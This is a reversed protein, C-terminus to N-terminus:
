VESLETQAYRNLSSFGYLVVFDAVVAQPQKNVIDHNVFAVSLQRDINVEFGGEATVKINVILVAYKGRFGKGRVSFRCVCRRHRHMGQLCHVLPFLFTFLRSFVSNELSKPPAPLLVQVEVEKRFNSGSDLADALEAM